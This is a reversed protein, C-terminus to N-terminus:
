ESDSQGGEGDDDDEDRCHEEVNHNRTASKHENTQSAKFIKGASNALGEEVISFRHQLAKMSARNVLGFGKVKAKHEVIITSGFDIRSRPDLQESGHDLDVRIAVPSMPAEGRAPLEGAQLAPPCRGSYIIAHEAKRVGQKFVSQVGYTTLPLAHCSDKGEFIVILRQEKLVRQDGNNSTVIRGDSRPAIATSDVPQLSLM